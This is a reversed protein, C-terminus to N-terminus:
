RTYFAFESRRNQKWASENHGPDAPMEEGMSVTQIREAEVGLRILVERISQARYEGLSVNYEITGREDCHGSVLLLYSPEAIMLDALANVKPMEASPITFTNYGFYVPTFAIEVANLNQFDINELPMDGDVFTEDIGDTLGYPNVGSVGDNISGNGEGDQSENTFCGTIMVVTTLMIAISAYKKLMEMKMRREEVKNKNLFAHM